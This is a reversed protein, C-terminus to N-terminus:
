QFTSIGDMIPMTMDLLVCVIDKWHINFIDLADKGNAAEFTKFGMHELFRVCLYRIAEDDDAVLIRGSFLDTETENEDKSINCVNNLAGDKEYAAPFLVRITTGKGMESNLIIAGKTGKVIGLVAAMGLGRGTVKTTFFPDFLREKTEENMGCGTDSADLYVFQGAPPKENLKSQNLYEADCNVVGISLNIEGYKDGIADAGNTILNMVVQQIQGPDAEILPISSSTNLNLSITRSISARFLNANEQVLTSLNFRRYVFNGKGSYALMQRTLDTGRCSSEIAQKLNIYSPSDPSIDLLALELNGLIAMLLNNFDHAIGGALIGLSELKQAHLIRKEMELRNVAADRLAEDTKKIDTIDRATGLMSIPNGHKDKLISSTMMTPFPQGNRRIHGVEGRNFGQKVMKENFPIVEKELQEGNHFISLHKGLIENVNYDHLKAWAPNAFLIIGNLDAIAIGDAAQEVAASMRRLEEEALIRDRLEKSLKRNWVLIILASVLLVILIVTKYEIM